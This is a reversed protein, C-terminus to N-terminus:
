GLAHRVVNSREDRAAARALIKEAGILAVAEQPLLEYGEKRSLAHLGRRALYLHQGLRVLCEVKDHRKQYVGAVADHHLLRHVRIHVAHHFKRPRLDEGHRDILVAHVARHEFIQECM